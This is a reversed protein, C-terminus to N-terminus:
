PKLIQAIIIKPTHQPFTIKISNSRKILDFKTNQNLGSNISCDSNKNSSARPCSNSRLLVVVGMEPIPVIIWRSKRSVSVIQLGHNVIDFM